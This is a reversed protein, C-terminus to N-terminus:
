PRYVNSGQAALLPRLRELTAPGIGPVELLDDVRSFGGRREREEIIRRALAPGIGPLEQLETEGARNLEVQASRERAGGVPAPPPDSFDLKARIRLLTAEGIGPVRLLDDPRRFPGGEERAQSIRGALAPGVGPLRALEVEDDRNPDVQEGPGLPTRRREEDALLSDTAPVLEAYATTDAPLLPTVPRAEWGLRVLSALLLVGATLALTRREEPTM